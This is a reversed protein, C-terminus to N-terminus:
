KSYKCFFNSVYFKVNTHNVPTNVVFVTDEKSFYSAFDEGTVYLQKRTEMDETTNKISQEIWIKHLDLEHEYEDLKSLEEKLQQIRVSYDSNSPSSTPLRNNYERCIFFDKKMSFVLLPLIVM